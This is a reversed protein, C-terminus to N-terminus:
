SSAMEGYLSCFASPPFVWVPQRSVCLKVFRRVVALNIEGCVFDRDWIGGKANGSCWCGVGSDHRRYWQRLGLEMCLDGLRRSLEIRYCKSNRSVSACLGLHFTRGNFLCLSSKHLIEVKFNGMPVDFCTYPWMLWTSKGLNLGQIKLTWNACKKFFPSVMGDVQQYLCIDSMFKLDPPMGKFKIFARKSWKVAMVCWINENRVASSQGHSSSCFFNFATPFVYRITTLLSGRLVLGRRRVANRLQNRSRM